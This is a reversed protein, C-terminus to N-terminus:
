ETSSELELRTTYSLKELLLREDRLRSLLDEGELLINGATTCTSHITDRGDERDFEKVRQKGETVLEALILVHQHLPSGLAGLKTEMTLGEAISVLSELISTGLLSSENSTIQNLEESTFSSKWVCLRDREDGLISRALDWKERESLNVIDVNGLFAQQQLSVDSIHVDAPSEGEQDMSGLDEESPMPNPPRGLVLSASTRLPWSEQCLLSTWVNLISSYLRSAFDSTNDTHFSGSFGNADQQQLLPSM